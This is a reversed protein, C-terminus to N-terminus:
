GGEPKPMLQHPRPPLNLVEEPFAEALFHVIDLPRIVSVAKGTEDVVPINDAGPEKMMEIARAISDSAALTHLIPSVFELVSMDYRVQRSVLKTMVDRETMLGRPRDGDLVLVYGRENEQVAALAAGVTADIGISVPSPLGLASIPDTRFTGIVLNGFKKGQPSTLL